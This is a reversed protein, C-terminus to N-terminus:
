YYMKELKTHRDYQNSFRIKTIQGKFYNGGNHSFFSEAKPEPSKKATKSGISPEFFISALKGTPVIKPTYLFGGPVLRVTFALVSPVNVLANKCSPLANTAAPYQRYEYTSM